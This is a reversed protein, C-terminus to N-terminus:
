SRPLRCKSSALLQATELFSLFAPNDNAPVWVASFPVIDARATLPRLVLGPIKVAAWAASVVTIGQRLSVLNMLNDQLAAKEEVDPYSSYDALRRVIYDHVEPGPEARSVLFHETKIDPWDLKPREVLPHGEWLAVHVRERWLERTEYGPTPGSGTIFAVDLRQARLAAFHERRGGDRLDIRVQPHKEAYAQVLQRLCGGALSTLIGVRVLGVEARRTARASRRASELQELVPAVESLFQQGAPTLRVGNRTREFLSVGLDDELRKLSRSIRPQDVELMEAARRFSGAQAAVTLYQLQRVAHRM